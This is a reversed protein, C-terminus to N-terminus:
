LLTIFFLGGFSIGTVGVPRNSFYELKKLVTTDLETCLRCSLRRMRIRPLQALLFSGEGLIDGVVFTQASSWSTDYSYGNSAYNWEQTAGGVLHTTAANAAPAMALLGVAVMMAVVAVHGASGRGEVGAM